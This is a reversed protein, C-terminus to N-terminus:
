CILVSVSLLCKTAAKEFDFPNVKSETNGNNEDQNGNTGSNILNNIAENHRSCAAMAYSGALMFSSALFSRRSMGKNGEKKM